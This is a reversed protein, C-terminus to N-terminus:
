GPETVAGDSDFKVTQVGHGIREQRPAHRVEPPRGNGVEIPGDVHHKQRMEVPIVKMQRRQLPKCDARSGDHGTPAFPEHRACAERGDDTYPATVRNREAVHLKGDRVCVM